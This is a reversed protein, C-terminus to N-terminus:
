GCQESRARIAAACWTALVDQGEYETDIDECVKACAERESVVLVKLGERIQQHTLTLLDRDGYQNGHRDVLRMALAYREVLTMIDERNMEGGQEYPPPASDQVAQWEKIKQIHLSTGFNKPEHNLKKVLRRVRGVSPPLLWPLSANLNFMERTALGGDRILSL